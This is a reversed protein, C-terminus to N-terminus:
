HCVPPSSNTTEQNDLRRGAGAAADVLVVGHGSGEGAGRGAGAAAGAGGRKRRAEGRDRGRVDSSCRLLGTGRVGRGRSMTERCARKRISDLGVGDM